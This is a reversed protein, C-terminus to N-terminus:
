KFARDVAGVQTGSVEPLAGALRRGENGEERGNWKPWEAGTLLKAWRWPGVGQLKEPTKGHQLLLRNKWVVPM